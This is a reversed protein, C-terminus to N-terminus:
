VGCINIHITWPYYINGLLRDNSQQKITLMFDRLDQNLYIQCLFDITNEERIQDFDSAKSKPKFSRSSLKQFIISDSVVRVNQPESLMPVILDFVFTTVTLNSHPWSQAPQARLKKTAYLIRLYIFAM